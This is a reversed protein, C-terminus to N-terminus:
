QVQHHGRLLGFCTTRNVVSLLSTTNKVVKCQVKIGLRNYDHTRIFNNATCSVVSKTTITSRVHILYSYFYGQFSRVKIIRDYLRYVYLTDQSWWVNYERPPTRTGSKLNPRNYYSHLSNCM